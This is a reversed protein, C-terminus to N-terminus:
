SLALGYGPEDLLQLMEAEYHAIPLSNGADKVTGELLRDGFLMVM